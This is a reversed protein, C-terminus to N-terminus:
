QNESQGKVFKEKLTQTKKILGRVAQQLNKEDKKMCENCVYFSRGFTSIELNKKFKNLEKQAFRQRCVVCMRIPVHKM